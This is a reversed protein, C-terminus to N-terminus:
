WIFDIFFAANFTRRHSVSVREPIKIPDPEMLLTSAPKIFFYPGVPQGPRIVETTQSESGLGKKANPIMRRVYYNDNIGVIKKCIGVFNRGVEFKAM